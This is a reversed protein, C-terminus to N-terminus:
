GVWGYILSGVNEENRELINAIVKKATIKQNCNLKLQIMTDYFIMGHICNAPKSGRFFISENFEKELYDGVLEAKEVTPVLGSDDIWQYISPDNKSRSNSTTQRLIELANRIMKPDEILGERVYLSSTRCRIRGLRYEINEEM